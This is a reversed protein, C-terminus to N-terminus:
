LRRAAEERLPEGREILREVARAIATAARADNGGAREAFAWVGKVFPLELVDDIDVSSRRLLRGFYDILDNKGRELTRRELEAGFEDDSPSGELQFRAAALLVADEHTQGLEGIAYCAGVCVDIDAHELFPGLREDALEQRILSQLYHPGIRPLDRAMATAESEGTPLLRRLEVILQERRRDSRANGLARLADEVTAPTKPKFLRDLM